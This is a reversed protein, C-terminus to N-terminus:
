IEPPQGSVGAAQIIFGFSDGNQRMRDDYYKRFAAGGSKIDPRNLYEQNAQRVFMAQARQSASSKETKSRLPAKSRATVFENFTKTM